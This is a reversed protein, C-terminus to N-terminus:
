YIFEMTYGTERTHYPSCLRSAYWTLASKVWKVHAFTVAHMMHVLQLHFTREDGAEQVAGTYSYHTEM